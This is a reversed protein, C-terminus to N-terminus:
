FRKWKKLIKNVNNNIVETLKSILEPMEKLYRILENTYNFQEGKIIYDKVSAKNDTNVIIGSENLIYKYDGYINLISIIEPKNM